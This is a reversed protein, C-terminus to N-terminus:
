ELPHVLSIVHSARIIILVPAWPGPRMVAEARLAASDEFCCAWQRNMAAACGPVGAGAVAYSISPCTLM